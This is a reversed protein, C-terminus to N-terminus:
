TENIVSQSLKFCKKYVNVHVCVRARARTHTHPLEMRVDKPDWLGPVAFSELLDAGCVFKVGPNKM